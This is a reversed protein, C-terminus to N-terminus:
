RLGMARMVDLAVDPKDTILGDAGLALLRRMEQPDDVTWYHVKVNRGHAVRILGERALDIGSSERTEYPIQLADAPAHYQFGLGLKWQVVLSLIENKSASTAVDPAAKRFANIADSYVSAVLVQKTKGMSHILDALPGAIPQDGEKIEINVRAQPFTRFVEELTPIYIGQGRYPYTAGGDPTFRYGADLKQLDALAFDCIRGTGDTLRDVTDDHAVVIAGDRTLHVDLELVDAGLELAKGFSPITNSPAYASAGQHALILPHAADLYPQPARPSAAAWRTLAALLLVAVVAALIQIGRRRHPRAAALASGTM